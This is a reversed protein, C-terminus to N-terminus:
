QLKESPRPANSQFDVGLRSVSALHKGTRVMEIRDVFEVDVRLDDGLHQHFQSLIEALAGETYRGAKVVRFTLAGREEQIVQFRQVAHDYEKLLHAFFTGPVFRGDTGQIISQVRGEIDGVLPLGRGCSCEYNPDMAVALDGIRYRVFPLCYNNLDTIV